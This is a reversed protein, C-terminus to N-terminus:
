RKVERVARLDIGFDVVTHAEPGMKLSHIIEKKQEETIKFLRDMDDKTAPIGTFRIQVNDMNLGLKSGLHKSTYGVSPGLSHAPVTVLLDILFDPQSM